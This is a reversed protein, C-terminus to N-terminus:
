LAYRNLIRELEAFEPHTKLLPVKLALEGLLCKARERAEKRIRDVEDALMRTTIMAM